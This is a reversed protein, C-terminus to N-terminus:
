SLLCHLNKDFLYINAIVNAGTTRKEQTERPWVSVRIARAAKKAEVDRADVRFPACYMVVALQSLEELVRGEVERGKWVDADSTGTTNRM